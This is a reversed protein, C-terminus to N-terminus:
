GVVEQAAQHQLDLRELSRINSRAIEIPVGIGTAILSLVIWFGTNHVDAALAGWITFALVLSFLVVLTPGDLRFLVRPRFRPRLPPFRPAGEEHDSRRCWDDAVTEYKLRQGAPGDEIQDFPDLIVDFLRGEIKYRLCLNLNPEGQAHSTKVRSDWGRWISVHERQVAFETALGQFGIWSGYLRLMGVDSGYTRDEFRFSARVPFQDEPYPSETLEAVPRPAEGKRTSLFLILLGLPLGFFFCFVFLWNSDLLSAVTLALLLAGGAIYSLNRVRCRRVAQAQQFTLPHWESFQATVTHNPVAQSELTIM